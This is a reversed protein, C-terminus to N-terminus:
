AASVAVVVLARGWRRGRGRAPPPVLGRALRAAPDVLGLLAPPGLAVCGSSSGWCRPAPPGAKSTPGSPSGSARRSFSCIAAAGPGAERSALVHIPSLAALLGAAGAAWPGALLAAVGAVIAVTAVGALASPRRLAGESAGASRSWLSLVGTYLPSTEAARAIAWAGERRPLGDPDM